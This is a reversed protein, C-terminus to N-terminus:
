DRYRARYAARRAARGGGRLAAPDEVACRPLFAVGLNGAVCLKIAEISQVQMSQKMKINKRLMYENLIRSHVSQEESYIIAADKM